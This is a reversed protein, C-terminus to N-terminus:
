QWVVEDTCELRIKYAIDCMTGYNIPKEAFWDDLMIFAAQEDIDLNTMSIACAMLAAFLEKQSVDVKLKKFRDM